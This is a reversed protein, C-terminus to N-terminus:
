ILSDEIWLNETLNKQDFHLLNFYLEKKLNRM